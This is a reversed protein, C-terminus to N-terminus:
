YIVISSGDYIIKIPIFQEEMCLQITPLPQQQIDFLVDSNKCYIAGDNEEAYNGQSTIL